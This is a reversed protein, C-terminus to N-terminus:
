LGGDEHGNREPNQELGRVASPMRCDRHVLLGGRLPPRRSCRCSGYAPVGYAGQPRGVGEAAGAPQGHREVSPELAERAAELQAEGRGAGHRGGGRAAGGVSAGLARRVRRPRFLPHAATFSALPLAHLETGRTESERVLSGVAGHAERFTAGKRVLYDALDTAMMTSSLAARMRTPTSRASPSRAPSPRSCSCCAHRGRRVARAQRGAPGQQLREAAGQAHALLSTLDGLM